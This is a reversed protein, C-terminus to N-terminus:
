VWQSARLEESVGGAPGLGWRAVGRFECALSGELQSEYGKPQGEIDKTEARPSIGKFIVVFRFEAFRRHRYKGRGRRRHRRSSQRNIRFPVFQM